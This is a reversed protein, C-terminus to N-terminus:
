KRKLVMLTIDDHQLHMHEEVDRLIHDHISRVDERGHKDIVQQLREETYMRDQHDKAETVGDSYLVIVDGAQTKFQDSELETEFNFVLDKWGVWMGTTEVVELKDIKPRYIYIDQHLGIFDVINGDVCSFVTLTMYKDEDMRNLNSSLIDNLVSILKRPEIRPERRILTSISTQVMMSILGSTVGHGSVDGIVFWLKEPTNIVDFYDGGVKEAPRMSAAIDYFPNDFNRPLLATQITRAVEMEKRAQGEVVMQEQLVKLQGLMTNFTDGLKEFEDGTKLDVRTDLNGAGIEQVHGMLATLPSHVLLTLIRHIVVLLALFILSILFVNTLSSTLMELWMYVPTFSISIAGITTDNKQIEREATLHSYAESDGTEFLVEKKENTLRVHTIERDLKLAKIIQEWSQRNFDWVPRTLAFSSLIALREAKRNLQDSLKFYLLTNMVAVAILVFASVTRVLRRTVKRNLIAEDGPAFILKLSGAFDTFNMFRNEPRAGPCLHFLM